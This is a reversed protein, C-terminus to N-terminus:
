GPPDAQSHKGQPLNNQKGPNRRGDSGTPGASEPGNFSGQTAFVPSDKRNGLALISLGHLGIDQVGQPGDGTDALDLAPKTPHLQEKLALM